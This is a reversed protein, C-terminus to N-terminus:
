ILIQVNQLSTFYESILGFQIPKWITSERTNVIFESKFFGRLELLKYIDKSLLNLKSELETSIKAPTIEKNEKM